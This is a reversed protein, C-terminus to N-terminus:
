LWVALVLGAVVAGAVRLLLNGIDIGMGPGMRLLSGFFSGAFM